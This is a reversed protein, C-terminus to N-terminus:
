QIAKGHNDEDNQEEDSQPPPLDPAYAPRGLHEAYWALERNIKFLAHRPQGFNHPEGEGVYLATPTGTDRVARYMLLAQTPPVRKDNEGTWFLTPTTVRWADFLPSQKRYARLPAHREWPTGGFWPTRGARRDSEGYLSVWEAVGAGSSAARFRDTATILKNTMHGGASWGMKILQDPDAIGTAILADIGSLVDTHAHRFYNGIMDRMFTDGYGTGGRHNPLFVAYGQGALVSIYRSENWSGFQSSSRPGGHTITALPYTSGREYGVPYVLLGDLRQGDSARWEFAEQEPLAVSGLLEGYIDTLPPSLEGEALIEVLEGPGEASRFRGFHRNSSDLYTWSTLSHDGETIQELSGDELEIRYLQTRLGSNGTFWIAGGDRDWAFDLVELAQVRMLLTPQEEGVRQVFLNDEFYPRGNHDVTAIFAFSQGDPAFRASNERYDNITLRKSQGTAVDISWLEAANRDELEPHFRQRVLLQRGDPAISYGEILGASAFVLRSEGSAIDYRYLAKPDRDAFANIAGDGFPKEQSPMDAEFIFGSGDPLWQVDGVDETHSTLRRRENAVLDMLYVQKQDDEGLEAITLYQYTGPRWIAGTEPDDPSLGVGTEVCALGDCTLVRLERVRKKKTWDVKAEVYSVIAGDEAVLVDSIRPLEVFQRPSLPYRPIEPNRQSSAPAAFLLAAVVLAGILLHTSRGIISRGTKSAGM